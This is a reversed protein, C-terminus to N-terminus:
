FPNSRASSWASHIGTGLSVLRMAPPFIPLYRTSTPLPTPPPLGIPTPRKHFRAECGGQDEFPPVLYAVHMGHTHTHARARACSTSANLHRRRTDPSASDAPGHVPGRGGPSEDCTNHAYRGRGAACIRLVWSEPPKCLLEVLVKSNRIGPPRATPMGSGCRAPTGPTRHLPRLRFARPFTPRPASIHMSVEIILAMKVIHVLVVRVYARICKPGVSRACQHASVRSAAGPM